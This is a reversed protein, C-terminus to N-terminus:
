FLNKLTTISSLADQVNKPRKLSAITTVATGIKALKQFPSLQTIGNPTLKAPVDSTLLKSQLFCFEVSFQMMSSESWNLSVDAISKPFAERLEYEFITDGQENFTRIVITQAYESKFEVEYPSLGNRSVNQSTVVYDSRVIGQIWNYFFKYIEGKGDGIFNITTNNTQASYPVHEQPGIGFRKISDDTQLFLGPLSAGEAYLSIKRATASGEGALIKPASFTIEFYNTRAVSNQRIEAIFNNMRGTAGGAPKSGFLSKVAAVTGIANMATNLLGM